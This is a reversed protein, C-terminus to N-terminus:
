IGSAVLFKAVPYNTPSGVSCAACFLLLGTIFRTGRRRRPFRVAWGATSSGFCAWLVAVGAFGVLCFVVFRLPLWAGAPHDWWDDLAHTNPDTSNGGNYFLGRM